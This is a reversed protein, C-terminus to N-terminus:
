EPSQPSAQPKVQQTQVSIKKIEDKYELPALQIAKEFLPSAKEGQSEQALVMAQALVPRFDQPNIQNATTYLAIAEQIRKQQLYIEGLLLQLSTVQATLTTDPPQGQGKLAQTIANQVTTIAEGPRDQALYLDSLGKIAAFDTANNVLLRRYVAASGEFDKLQQKSQALLLSYQPKEPNLQALRELPAIAAELNGQQLRTELLGQLANVNSPERELIAQYGLSQNALRRDGDTNRGGNTQSQQWITTALPLVSFLILASLMLGLVFYVWRSRKSQSAKVM